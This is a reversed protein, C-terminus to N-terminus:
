FWRSLLFKWIFSHVSLVYGIQFIRWKAIFRNIACLHAIFVSNHTIGTEVEWYRFLLVLQFLSGVMWITEAWRILFVLANYIPQGVAIDFTNRIIWRFFVIFYRRFQNNFSSSLSVLFTANPKKSMMRSRQLSPLDIVFLELGKRYLPLCKDCRVLAPKWSPEHIFLIFSFFHDVDPISFSSTLQVDWQPPAFNVPFPTEPTKRSRIHSFLSASPKRPFHLHMKLLPHVCIIQFTTPCFKWEIIEGAAFFM